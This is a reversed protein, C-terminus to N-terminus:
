ELEKEEGTKLPPKLMHNAWPFLFNEWGFTRSGVKRFKTKGLLDIVRQRFVTRWLDIIKRSLSVTLLKSSSLYHTALFQRYDQRLQHKVPFLILEDVTTASKKQGFCERPVGASEVIRRPIPRDYDGPISWPAMEPDLSIQKIERLRRIGWFPVPCHIVGKMLRHECFGLGTSDKRKLFDDPSSTSKSWVMDGNFGTFMASPGPPYDFISFNMDQLSGNAAWYWLEDKFDRRSSSFEKCSLGLHRCIESGSDERPIISRASKITFAGVSGAERALISAVPSDYGRSITSFVTVPRERSPDRANNGTSVATQYLFHSYSEFDEFSDITQLKPVVEIGSSDIKLNEFYHINLNGRDVPYNREYSNGKVISEVLKAYRDESCILNINAVSLLCPLSNSITIMGGDQHSWLRDVTSCSSAFWAEEGRVRLGSGFFLESEVFELKEFPGPWVGEVAFDVGHEVLAGCWLSVVGSQSADIRAVWALPPFTSIKSYNLNLKM